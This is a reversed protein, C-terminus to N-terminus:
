VNSIVESGPFNHAGAYLEMENDRSFSGYQYIHTPENKIVEGIDSRCRSCVRDIERFLAAELFHTGIKSFSRLSLTKRMTKGCSEGYIEPNDNILRDSGNGM